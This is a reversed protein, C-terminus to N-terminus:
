DCRWKCEHGCSVTPRRVDGTLLNVICTAYNCLFNCPEGQSMCDSKCIDNFRICPSCHNIYPTDGATEAKTIEIDDMQEDSTKLVPNEFGSLANPIDDSPAADTSTSRWRCHPVPNSDCSESPGCFKLTEWRGAKCVLVSATFLDTNCQLDDEKCTRGSGGLVAVALGALALLVNNIKM